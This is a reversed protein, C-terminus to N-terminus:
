KGENELEDNLAEIIKGAIKSATYESLSWNQYKRHCGECAYEDGDHQCNDCYAYCLEKKLIESIINIM